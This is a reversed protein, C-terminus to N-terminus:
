PSRRFKFRAYDLLEQQAEPPLQRAIDILEQLTINTDNDQPPLIGAKTLAVVPSADLANAIQIVMDATLARKGTLVNSLHGQAIGALKALQRQSIDRGKLEEAIWDSFTM